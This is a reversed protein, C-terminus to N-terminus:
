SSFIVFTNIDFIQSNIKEFVKEGNAVIKNGLCPYEEGDLSCKWKVSHSVIEFFSLVRDYQQQSIGEKPNAFLYFESGNFNNFECFVNDIPKLYGYVQYEDNDKKIKYWVIECEEVKYHSIMDTKLYLDSNLISYLSYYDCEDLNPKKVLVSKVYHIDSVLNQGKTDESGELLADQLQDNIAPRCNVVDGQNTLVPVEKGIYEPSNLLYYFVKNELTPRNVPLQEGKYMSLSLQDKDNYKETVTKMTGQISISNNFSMIATSEHGEDNQIKEFIENSKNKILASEGMYHIVSSMGMGIVSLLIAIIAITVVSEILTIGKDNWKM